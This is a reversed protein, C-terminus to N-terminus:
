CNDVIGSGACKEQHPRQEPLVILAGRQSSNETASSFGGVGHDGAEGSAHGVHDAKLGVALDIGGHCARHAAHGVQQPEGVLRFGLVEAHLAYHDCCDGGHRIKLM